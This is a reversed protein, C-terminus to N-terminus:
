LKNLFETNFKDTTDTYKASVRDPIFFLAHIIRLFFFIISILLIGIVLSLFDPNKEDFYKASNIIIGFVLIMFAVNIIKWNSTEINLMEGTEKIRGKFHVPGKHHLEIVFFDNSDLDDIVIDINNLVQRMKLSKHNKIVRFSSIEGNKSSCSFSKFDEKSLTKRGNNYFIFRTILDAEKSSWLTSNSCNLCISAQEYVMRYFSKFYFYVSMIITFVIVIVSFFNFFGLYNIAKLINELLEM